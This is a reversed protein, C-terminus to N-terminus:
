KYKPILLTPVASVKEEVVRAAVANEKSVIKSLAGISTRSSDYIIIASYPKYISVMAKLVGPQAKLKKEIRILCAACSSGTIVMDVRTMAALAPPCVIAPIAAILGVLLFLRVQKISMKM